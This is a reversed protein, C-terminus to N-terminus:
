DGVVVDIYTPFDTRVELYTRTTLDAYTWGLAGLLPGTPRGLEAFRVRVTWEYTDTHLVPSVETPVHYLDRAADGSFRTFVVEGLAYIAEVTEASTRTGCLYEVTGTRTSLPGITALPDSRGIVQHLTTAATRTAELGITLEPIATHQPLVPLGVVDATANLATSASVPSAQGTHVTYTVPGSLAPEYDRLVLAGGVIGQGELMRVPATGNRDTRAIVLADPDYVAPLREIRIVRLDPWDEQSNITLSAATGTQVWELTKTSPNASDAPWFVGGMHTAGNYIEVAASKLTRHIQVTLRYRAGAVLAPLTRATTLFQGYAGFPPWFVKTGNVTGWGFIAKTTPDAPGSVITRTWANKETGAAWTSDTYQTAILEYATTPAQYATDAINLLVSATAVDPTLTLTTTM